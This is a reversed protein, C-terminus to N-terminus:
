RPAVYGSRARLSVDPRRVRVELHHLAGDREPAVYALLYQRHLEEAVRAFTTTLNATGTLEFYGGGGLTTLVRLHPDPKSSECSLLEKSRVPEFIIPPRTPPLGPVGRPPMPFPVPAGVPGRGGTRGGPRPGARGPAGRGTGGRGQGGGSRGGRQYAVIQTAAPAAVVFSRDSQCEKSLGIAYVMADETEVRHRVQDFTVDPGDDVPLDKGDTFLLVVRRGPEGSVATLAKDTANWLPTPGFPQLDHRLIALLTEHNGTFTDPDIRIRTSFSGIRARDDPGLQNVFEAAAQEVLAFQAEVSGSRDLMMVVTIPQDANTFTTLKQPRGNDLVEFDERTLDTVLRGGADLATVFIPVTDTGGRFQRDQGALLSSGGLVALAGVLVRLSSPRDM